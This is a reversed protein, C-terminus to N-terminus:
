AAKLTVMVDDLIARTELQLIIIEERDDAMQQQLRKMETIYHEVLAEHASADDATPSNTTINNM